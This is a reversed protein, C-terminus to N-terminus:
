EKAIKMSTIFVTKIVQIQERNVQKETADLRGKLDM